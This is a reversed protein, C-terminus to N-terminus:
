PLSSNDMKEEDIIKEITYRYSAGFPRSTIDRKDIEYYVDPRVPKGELSSYCLGHDNCFISNTEIEESTLNVVFTAMDDFSFRLVSSNKLSKDYQKSFNSIGNFAGNTPTGVITVNEQTSLAWSALDCSSMCESSTLLLISNAYGEQWKADLYLTRCFTGNFVDLNLPLGPDFYTEGACYWNGMNTHKVRLSRLNWLNPDQAPILLNMLSTLNDYTGGENYRFDLVLPAGDEKCALVEEELKAWLDVEQNSDSLFAAEHSFHDLKFYCSEIGEASKFRTFYAFEKGTDKNSKVSWDPSYLPKSLYYGRSGKKNKSADSYLCTSIKRERLRKKTNDDISDEFTSYQASVDIMEGDRVIKLNIVGSEPFSYERSGFEFVARAERAMLSSGFQFKVLRQVVREISVGDVSIIQDGLKVDIEDGCNFQPSVSRVFIGDRTKALSFPLQIRPSKLLMAQLHSNNFQGICSRVLGNVDEPNDGVSDVLDFCTDFKKDLKESFDNYVNESYQNSMREKLDCLINIKDDKSYYSKNLVEPTVQPCEFENSYAKFSFLFIHLLLLAKKM